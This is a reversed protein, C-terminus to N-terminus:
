RSVIEEKKLPFPDAQPCPFCGEGGKGGLLRSTRGTEGRERRAGRCQDVEKGRYRMYRRKEGRIPPGKEGKEPLLRAIREGGGKFAYADDREEPLYNSGSVRGRHTIFHGGKRETVFRYETGWKTIGSFL